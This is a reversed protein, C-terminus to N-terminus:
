KTKHYILDLKTEELTNSFIHIKIKSRFGQLSM